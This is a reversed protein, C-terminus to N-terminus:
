LNCLEQEIAIELLGLVIVIVKSIRMTSGFDETATRLTRLDIALSNILKQKELDLDLLDQM